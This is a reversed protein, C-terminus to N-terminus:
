SIPSARQMLARTTDRYVEQVAKKYDAKIYEREAANAFGLLGFVMDRPDTSQAGRPREKVCFNTMAIRLSHVEAPYISTYILMRHMEPYCPATFAFEQLKPSGAEMGRSAIYKQYAELLILAGALNKSIMTKSGCCFILERALYVEQLVWVRQWYVRNSFRSYALTPFGGELRANLEPLLKDLIPTLNLPMQDLRNDHGAEDWFLNGIEELHDWLAHSSDGPGDIGPDALGLWAYVKQAAHFIQGMHQVIYSKEEENSQNICIADTWIYTNPCLIQLQMLAMMLNERIAFPKGNVKIVTGSNENGWVYSLAVFHPASGIIFEELIISISTQTENSGSIQQRNWSQRDPDLPLLKILKIHRLATAGVESVLKYKEVITDEVSERTPTFNFTQNNNILIPLHPQSGHSTFKEIRASIRASNYM